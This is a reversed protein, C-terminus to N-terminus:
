YTLWTEAEMYTYCSLAPHQMLYPIDKQLFRTYPVGIKELQFIM